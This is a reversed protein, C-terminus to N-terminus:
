PLVVPTLEDSRDLTGNGLQGHENKGTCAVGGATTLVCTSFWSVSVRAIGSAVLAPEKRIATDGTGLQGEINRGWCYLEAGSSVSCTHFVMTSLGTTAPAGPVRTPVDLGAADIGLPFGEDRAQGVNQGWCWVSGDRKVACTYQQGPVPKLWDTDTGVRLPARVQIRTEPGLEHSSNRGWCFLAGDLRVACTHGDGTAVALWEAAGVRLPSLGDRETDDGGVGPDDQGLQGEANGGWCYVSADRLLACTHMSQASVTVAPAPLPVRVLGTVTARDGQGLQGRDNAGACHVDGLDDIACSHDHAAVASTFRLSAPVQVPLLQDAPDDLGLQGDENSGWAHLAGGVIALGHAFGASVETAVTAPPETTGAPEPALVDGREVCGALVVAPLLCLPLPSRMM